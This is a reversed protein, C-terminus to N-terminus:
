WELRFLATFGSPRSSPSADGSIGDIEITSLAELVCRRQAPDLSTSPEVAYRAKGDAASLKLRIVGGAGPRCPETASAAPALVARTRAPEAGSVQEVVLVPVPRVYTNSASDLPRPATKATEVRQAPEEVAAACSAAAFGLVLGLLLTSARLWAM